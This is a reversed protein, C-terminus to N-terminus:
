RLRLTKKVIFKFEVIATKTNGNRNDPVRGCLIQSTMETVSQVFNRSIYM